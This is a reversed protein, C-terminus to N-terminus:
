FQILGASANSRCGSATEQAGKHVAGFTGSGLPEPLHVRVAPHM